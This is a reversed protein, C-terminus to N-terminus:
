QARADRESNNRIAKISFDLAVEDGILPYGFSMGFEGRSIRGRVVAACGDKGPMTDAACEFRTVDFRAPRTVGRMTVEGDISVLRDGEFGLRSSHFRISPYREVDFMLDSKLFADRLDWGTNISRADAILEVSGARREADLVIEGRILGFRGETSIGLHSVAFVVSANEPAIRFTAADAEVLLVLLALAVSL